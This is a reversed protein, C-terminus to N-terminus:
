VFRDQQAGRMVARHEEDTEPLPPEQAIKM